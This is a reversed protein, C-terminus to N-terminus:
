LHDLYTNRLARTELCLSLFDLKLLVADPRFWMTALCLLIEKELPDERGLSRVWTEWNCASSKVKAGGAFGNFVFICYRLFGGISM